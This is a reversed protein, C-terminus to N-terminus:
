GGVHQTEHGCTRLLLLGPESCVRTTAAATNGNKHRALEVEVLRELERDVAQRVLQQLEPRHAAVLQGIREDIASASV